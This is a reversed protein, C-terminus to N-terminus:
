LYQVPDVPGTLAGVAPIDDRPRVARPYPPGASRSCVCLEAVRSRGLLEPSNLSVQDLTGEGAACAAM